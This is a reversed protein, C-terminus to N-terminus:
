KEPFFIKETDIRGRILYKVEYEIRDEYTKESIKKDLIECDAYFNNEYMNIQNKLFETAEEVSETISIFEYNKFKETIIGLPLEYGAAKFMNVKESCDAGPFYKEGIFLPIKYGFFSFYRRTATDTYEKVENEFYRVFTQTEEYDGTVEGEAHAITFNNKGNTQIGSILIDGKGVADGKKVECMGRFPKVSYIQADKLSIINCPINSHVSGSNLNAEKVDIIILGGRNRVAAWSIEGIERKIKLESASLDLNPIFAGHKVGAMSVANLIQESSINVNGNVEIKVVTNSMYFIFLGSIIIGAIIGYRTRYRFVRFIKSNSEQVYLDVRCREAIESLVRYDSYYIKGTYEGFSCQQSMCVIGSNRVANIFQNLETGCVRFSIIRRLKM